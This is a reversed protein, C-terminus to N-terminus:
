LMESVSTSSSESCRDFCRESASELRPMESLSIGIDTLMGTIEDYPCSYRRHLDRMAAGTEGDPGGLQTMIGKANGPGPNKSKGPEQLARDYKWM